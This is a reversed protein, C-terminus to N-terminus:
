MCKMIRSTLEEPLPNALNLYWKRHQMFIKFFNRKKRHKQLFEQFITGLCFSGISTRLIFLPMETWKLLGHFGWLHFDRCQHMPAYTCLHYFFQFFYANMKFITRQFFIESLSFSILLETESEKMLFFDKVRYSM